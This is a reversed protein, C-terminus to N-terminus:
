MVTSKGCGSEGVLAVKMGPPIRLSLGNLVVQDPRNPYNFKIDKLM